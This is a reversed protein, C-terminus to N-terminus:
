SLFLLGFGPGPSSVREQTIGCFLACWEQGTTTLPPPVASQGGYGFWSARATEGISPIQFGRNSSKPTKLIDIQAMMVVYWPAKESVISYKKGGQWARVRVTNGISMMQEREGM